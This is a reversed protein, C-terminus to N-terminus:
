RRGRLEIAPRLASQISTIETSIVQTFSALSSVIWAAFDIRTARARRLDFQSSQESAKDVAAHVCHSMVTTGSITAVRDRGPTHPVFREAVLSQVTEVMPLEAMPVWRLAAGPGFQPRSQLEGNQLTYLSEYQLIMVKSSAHAWEAKGSRRQRRLLTKM